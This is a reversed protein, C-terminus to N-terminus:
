TSCLLDMVLCSLWVFLSRLLVCHAVAKSLVDASVM